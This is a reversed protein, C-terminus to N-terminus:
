KFNLTLYCAKDEDQSLSSLLTSSAWYIQRTIRTKHSTQSWLMAKRYSVCPCLKIVDLSLLFCLLAQKIYNHSKFM